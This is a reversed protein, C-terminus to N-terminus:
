FQKAPSSFHKRVREVISKDLQSGGSTIRSITNDVVLSGPKLVFHSPYGSFQLVNRMINNEIDNLVIFKGNIAYKNKIEQASKEETLVAFFLFSPQSEKFQDIFESYHPMEKMCPM